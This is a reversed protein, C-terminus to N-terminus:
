ANIEDKNDKIVYSYIHCLQPLWYIIALIFSLREDIAPLNFIGTKIQINNLLKNQKM